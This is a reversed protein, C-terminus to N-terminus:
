SIQQRRAQENYDFQWQKDDNFCCVLKQEYCEKTGPWMGDWVEYEDTKCNCMLNQGGCVPCREVDCDPKHRKGVEVGCDHCTVKEETAWLDEIVQDIEKQSLGYKYISKWM